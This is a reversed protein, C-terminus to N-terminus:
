ILHKGPGGVCGFFAAQTSLCNPPKCPLAGGVGGHLHIGRFEASETGRIQLEAEMNPIEACYDSSLLFFFHAGFSCMKTCM